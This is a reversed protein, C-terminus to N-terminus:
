IPDTFCIRHKYYEFLVLLWLLAVAEPKVNRSDIAALMSCGRLVLHDRTLGDTHALIGGLV